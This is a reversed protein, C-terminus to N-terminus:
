VKQMLAHENYVHELLTDVNDFVQGCENWKCSCNGPTAVPASSTGVGSSGQNQQGYICIPNEPHHVSALSKGKGGKGVGESYNKLVFFLIIIATFKQNFM